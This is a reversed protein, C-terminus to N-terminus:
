NAPGEEGEMSELGLTSVAETGTVGQVVAEGVEELGYSEASGMQDGTQVGEMAAPQIPQCDEGEAGEEEVQQFPPPLARQHGQAPLQDFLPHPPPPSALQLPFTLQPLPFADDFPPLREDLLPLDNDVPVQLYSLLLFLHLPQLPKLDSLPDPHSLPVKILPM